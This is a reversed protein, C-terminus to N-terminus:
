ARESTRVSLASATTADVNDSVDIGDLSVNNDKACRVMSNRESNFTSWRKDLDRQTGTNSLKTELSDAHYDAKVKSIQDM